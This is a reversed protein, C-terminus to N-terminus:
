KRLAAEEIQRVRERTIGLRKGIAELTQIDRNIGYRCFIVEKFRPSINKLYKEILKGLPLTNM